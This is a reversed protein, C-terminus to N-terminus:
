ADAFGALLHGLNELRGPSCRAEPDDQISDFLREAAEVTAVLAICEDRTLPYVIHREAKERLAPLSM